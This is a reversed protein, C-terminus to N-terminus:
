FIERSDSRQEDSTSRQGHGLVTEWRAAFMRYSAASGPTGSATVEVVWCGAM